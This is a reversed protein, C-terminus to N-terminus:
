TCAQRTCGPTVASCAQRPTGHGTATVLTEVRPSRVRTSGGRARIVPTPRSGAADEEPACRRCPDMVVAPWLWARRASTAPAQAERSGAWPLRGRGRRRSVGGGMMGSRLQFAWPRRQGRSRRRPERPGCAGTTVPARARASAPQMHAMALATGTVRDSWCLPRICGEVGCTGWTYRCLRLGPTPDGAAAHLPSSLLSAGRHLGAGSPPWDPPRWGVSLRQSM